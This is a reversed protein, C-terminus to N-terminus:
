QIKRLRNPNHVCYETFNPGYGRNSPIDRLVTIDYGNDFGYGALDETNTMGEDEDTLEGSSEWSLNEYDYFGHKEFVAVPAQINSWSNSEFGGWDKMPDFVKAGELDFEWKKAYKASYGTDSYSYYALDDAFFMFGRKKEELYQRDFAEDSSVRYLILKRKDTLGERLKPYIYVYSMM